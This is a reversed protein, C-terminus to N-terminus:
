RGAHRRGIGAVANAPTIARLPNRPGVRDALNLHTYFLKPETSQRKGMM